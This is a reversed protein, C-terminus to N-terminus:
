ACGRPRMFEDFTALVHAIMDETMGPYVGIFFTGSAIADANALDGAVRHEISEYAPHRLLNGSFLSRTEVRATELARV